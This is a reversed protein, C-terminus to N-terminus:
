TMQLGSIAEAFERRSREWSFRKINVMGRQILEQRLSNDSVIKKMAEGVEYINTPDDVYLAADAAIEPICSRRSVIIPTGSAMSEVIPIGFGESSSILLVSSAAKYYSALERDSLVGVFRVRSKMEITGSDYIKFLDEGLNLVGTLVLDFDKFLGSSYFAGLIVEVNKYKRRNGAYFFFPRDSQLPPSEKGFASSVSNYIVRIREQPINLEEVLRKRSFQSVTIILGCKKYLISLFYKYYVKHLLSYHDLHILDHVTIISRALHRNTLPPMFGPSFFIDGSSFHGSSLARSLYVPSIPSGVGARGKILCTNLQCAEFVPSLENYYRGIGSRGGWRDDVFLRSM